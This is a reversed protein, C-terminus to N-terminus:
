TELAFGLIELKLMEFKNQQEILCLSLYNAVERLHFPSMKMDEALDNVLSDYKEQKSIKLNGNAHWKKFQKPTM